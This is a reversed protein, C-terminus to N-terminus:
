ASNRKLCMLMGQSCTIKIEDALVEQEGTNHIYSTAQNIGEDLLRGYHQFSYRRRSNKKVSTLLYNAAVRYVWTTFASEGKFTGLHTIIRILIEQTGDKAVEPDFLMKLALNYVKGQIAKVVQELARKDGQLAQEVLWEINEM